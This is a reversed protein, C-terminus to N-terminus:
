ELMTQVVMRTGDIRVRIAGTYDTRLVQAGHATYRAVVEPAPHKFKNGEGLSMVAVAPAVAEVFLPQSSTRSGHHAVKLLCAPLRAGWALIAPDTEQEVDGTFLVRVAGHQLSFVVSGNNPGFPANGDADVFDPTPHLVLGAVGDLGAM